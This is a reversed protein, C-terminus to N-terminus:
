RPADYLHRLGRSLNLHPVTVHFEGPLVIGDVDLSPYRRRRLSDIMRQTDAVMDIVRLGAKEQEDASLRSVERQRGDYDEYEGVAFFVQARLDDHESAYREEVAFMMDGDWWLSPSGLVYRRFISPETLLVYTGFLGGQSHGFYASDDPDVRFHERVWPQLEDRFFGRFANAGGMLTQDPFIDVFGADHTPTFDRTRLVVTEDIGGARYGVGVVLMPPLHASLQMFRVIEVAGAFLGNADTVYLVPPPAAAGDGATGCHGVFIKFEDGVHESRLYHVETGALPSGDNGSM